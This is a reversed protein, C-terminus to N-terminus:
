RAIRMIGPTGRFASIIENTGASAVHYHYGRVEDTHGRCEDLETAENGNDDREAFIGFGDLAYGIMPAHGDAQDISKTAGTAAHYHYGTHPNLHGGSDDLPAITHAALIAHIPAPPDFNVGNFAVGVPTGRRFRTTRENYVPQVPIIYTTTGNDIWEPRGEVVHNHFRPDVNPRAASQFAEKTETVRISGDERVLNWTPDDYFEAINAVFAGDVDYVEGDKFWLGGADKGDSVHKPSWPGMEHEHPESTTKIIYCLTQEGDGLDYEEQIIEAVLSDAIFYSPDVPFATSDAAGAHTVQILFAHLILYALVRDFSSYHLLPM